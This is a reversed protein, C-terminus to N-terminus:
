SAVGSFKMAMFNRITEQIDQSTTDANRLFTIGVDEPYFELMCVSAIHEVPFIYGEQLICTVYRQQRKNQPWLITHMLPSQKKGM